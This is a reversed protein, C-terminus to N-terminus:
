NTLESMMLENALDGTTRGRGVEDEEPKEQEGRVVM